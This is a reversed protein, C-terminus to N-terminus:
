TPRLQGRQGRAHRPRYTTGPKSDEPTGSQGGGHVRSAAPVSKGHQFTPSGFPNTGSLKRTKAGAKYKAKAKAKYKAKAKDADRAARPQYGTPDNFPM